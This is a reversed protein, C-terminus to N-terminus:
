RVQSGGPSAGLSGSEHNMPLAEALDYVADLDMGHTEAFRDIKRDVAEESGPKTMRRALDNSLVRLQGADIGCERARRLTEAFRARHVRLIGGPTNILAVPSGAPTLTLTGPDLAKKSPWVLVRDVDNEIGALLTGMVDDAVVVKECPMDLRIAAAITSLAETIVVTCAGGGLRVLDLVAKRKKTATVNAVLRREEPSLVGDRLGALSNTSM